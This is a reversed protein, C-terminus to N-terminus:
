RYAGQPQQNNTEWTESAIRTQNKVMSWFHGLDQAPDILLLEIPEGPEVGADRGEPPIVILCGAFEEPDNREVRDAMARLIEAPTPM